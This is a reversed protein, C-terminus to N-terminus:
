LDYKRLFNEMQPILASIGDNIITFDALKSKEEDAMQSNIRREIEERSAGARLYARHIRIDKPAYVM